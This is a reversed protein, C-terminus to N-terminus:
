ADEGNPLVVRVSVHRRRAIKLAEGMAPSVTRSKPLALVHTAEKVTARHDGLSVLSCPELADQWDRAARRQLPTMGEPEKLVGLTVQRRGLKRRGKERELLAREAETLTDGALWMAIHLDALRALQHRKTPVRAPLEVDTKM